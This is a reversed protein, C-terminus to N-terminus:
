PCTYATCFLLVSTLHVVISFRKIHTSNRFFSPQQDAMGPAQLVATTDIASLTANALNTVMFAAFLMGPENPLDDLYRAEGAAQALGELKQAPQSVPYESPDTDFSQEGQSIPRIFPQGATEILLLLLLCSM